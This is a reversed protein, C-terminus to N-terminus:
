WRSAGQSTYETADCHASDCKLGTGCPRIRFHQLLQSLVLGGALQTAQDSFGIICSQENRLRDKALIEKVPGVIEPGAKLEIIPIKDAPVAELTPITQGAFEPGKGKGVDLMQLEALTSTRAQPEDPQRMMFACGKVMPPM